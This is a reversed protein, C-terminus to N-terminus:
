FTIRRTIRDSAAAPLEGALRPEQIIELAPERWTIGILNGTNPELRLVCIPTEVKKVSGELPLAAVM